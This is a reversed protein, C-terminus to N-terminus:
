AQKVKAKLQTKLLANEQLAAALQASLTEITKQAKDLEAILRRPSGDDPVEQLASRSSVILEKQERKRDRYAKQREASSMASGTTPRGRGRKAGPMPLEMTKNDAAHKM